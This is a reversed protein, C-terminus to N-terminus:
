SPPLSHQYLFALHDALQIIRFQLYRKNYILQNIFIAALQQSQVGRINLNMDLLEGIGNRAKQITFM